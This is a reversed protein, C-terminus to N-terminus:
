RPEKLRARVLEGLYKVPLSGHDMVAEHYRGLDFADGLERQIERRLQYLAMRGVFYTSLQITSQKSRIIKLRAEGEAQFSRTMLLDLAEEDSMTTCHMRHDLIANAVARLYFKLQTLRLALDGEGYGQDLMMQETYVAWGEIFVGSRLVRRIPSDERNHYELQVYHGPYAEHITLIQLMHRNYEQLFSEVRAESWDAPPPSIAYITKNTPDFPPAPQIYALSNGRRFEPMESLECRDPEPLRLIDNETIFTRLKEVTSRADRLLDEPKGHEKGITALVQAITERRGQEDDVPLSVGPFYKSWLQRAVVHMENTVRSFEQEAQALVEDATTDAKLALQMKRAFKEKGLRWNQSARVRLEGELFEQHQALKILLPQAAEKLAARQASDGIMAYIGKEYFSIVGLNQKIGTELVPLPPSKLTRQAEDIIRPLQRIRAIANSINNELPLSSQSLLRYVCGSLYENYSRPDNELERINETLWLEEELDQKFIEFDIQSPRSLEAYDFESELKQLTQRLGNLQKERAASSIDDIQDDYRHDGLNSAYVPSQRLREELHDQFFTNFNTDEPTHASSMITAILLFVAALRWPTSLSTTRNLRALEIKPSARSFCIRRYKRQPHLIPGPNDTKWNAATGRLPMLLPSKM